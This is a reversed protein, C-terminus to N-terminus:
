KFQCRNIFRQKFRETKVYPLIFNDACNRLSRTRKEPLLDKLIHQENTSIQGFLKENHQKILESITIYSERQTALNPPEKSFGILEEEIKRISHQVSLNQFYRTLVLVFNHAKIM